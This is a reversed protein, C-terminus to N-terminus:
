SAAGETPESGLAIILNRALDTLGAPHGAFQGARDATIVFNYSGALVALGLASASAKDGVGHLRTVPYTGGANLARENAVFVATSHTAEVLIAVANGTRLVYTCVFAKPDPSADSQAPTARTVKQGTVAAVRSSPVLRCVDIKHGSLPGGTSGIGAFSPGCASVSMAAASVAGLTGAAASMRRIKGTTM